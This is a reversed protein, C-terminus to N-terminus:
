DVQLRLLTTKTPNIYLSLPFRPRSILIVIIHCKALIQYLGYEDTGTNEQEIRLLDCWFMENLELMEQIEFRNVISELGILM